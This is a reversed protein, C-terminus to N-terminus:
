YLTIEDEDENLCGCLALPQWVAGCLCLYCWFTQGRGREEASVNLLPCKRFHAWPMNQATLQALFTGPGQVGCALAAEDPSGRLPWPGSTALGLAPRALLPHLAARLLSTAVEGWLDRRPLTCVPLGWAQAGRGPRRILKGKGEGPWGKSRPGRAM